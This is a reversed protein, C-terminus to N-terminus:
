ELAKLRQTAASVVEGEKQIKIASQYAEKAKVRNGLQEYAQGLGLLAKAVWTEHSPFVYRVRLFATVADNWNKSLLYSEGSLYQAEAGIQDTRSTAVQQALSQAASFDRAALSLKVLGIRAKDAQDTGPFKSIVFEFQNRAEESAGNEYFLMGKVYSIEAASPSNALGKEAKTLLEFAKDYQKQKRFIAIAELLSSSVIQDPAGEVGAAEVYAGAAEALKGSEALSRGLWYYAAARQPSKPYRHTFSRYEDAAADYQQQSFLLDGKKLSLQESTSSDPHERQYADIVGLAEQSKGQASLCYQIGTLADVAYSTKPFLRIVERYSKEAAAYQELNYYADGISYYARPAVDGDPYDGTVKQFERIAALYNKEQFKIWGLAYQADDALPSTPFTKILSSFQEAAQNRDGSRFYTQALQYSAYDAGPKNPFLRLVARYDGAAKGYDKQQFYSDGLRLRADFSFKSNPYAVILREYAEIAKPFDKMKFYAWGVGYMVEERRATGGRGLLRQYYALASKYDGAEYESEAMWYSAEDVRPDGPYESSFKSFQDAAEKFHSTRYFCWAIQFTANAKVEPRAATQAVARGYATLAPEYNGEAFLCEGLMEYADPLVDSAPYGTTVREFYQKAAAIKKDEYSMLGLDYLANDAYDSSANAKYLAEFTQAADARKGELKEAVGKRYAAAIAFADNEGALKSFTEAAAGFKRQKLLTWGLAYTVERALNSESYKALFEEYYKQAAPYQELHYYSEGLLYEVEAKQELSDIGQRAALLKDIAKAYDKLYYSCEADALKASNALSSQPYETALRRYWEAAKAYDKKQQYTWAISYVAYDRLRNQPYNEYSLTYYKIANDYDGKKLYAEGIWYAAEGAINSGGYGDLVAKYANIADDSKKLRLYTDGLRIWADDALNSSPNQRVFSSLEKAAVEYQGVQFFCEAKLFRADPVKVSAPYRQIFREFQQTAQQFLGDKYLGYAFAYDQEEAISPTSSPSTVQGLAQQRPVSLALLILTVLEAVLRNRISLGKGDGGIRLGFV